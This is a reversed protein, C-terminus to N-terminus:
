LKDEINLIISRNKKNIEKFIFFDNEKKQELVGVIIVLNSIIENPYIRFIYDISEEYKKILNPITGSDYNKLVNIYYNTKCQQDDCLLKLFDKRCTEVNDYKFEILHKREFKDNGKEYLTVDVNGSRGEGIKPDEGSFDKYPVNTPTEISYFFKTNEQKELERVFLFVSEQESIRKSGNRYKPFILKSNQKENPIEKENGIKQLEQLSDKILQEVIKM